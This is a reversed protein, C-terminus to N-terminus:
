AALRSRSQREAAVRRDVRRRGPRCSGRRGGAAPTEVDAPDGDADARPRDDDDGDRRKAGRVMSQSATSSHPAPMFFVSSRSRQERGLQQGGRGRAGGLEAGVASWRIPANPPRRRAGAARRRRRAFPRSRAPRVSAGIAAPWAIRRRGRSRSRRLAEFEADRGRATRSREGAPVKAAEARLASALSVARGESRPAPDGAAEHEDASTTTPTSPRRREAFRPQSSLRGHRRYGPAAAVRRLWAQVAPYDALASAAARPSMPTPTSRSTPSAHPRRRRALRAGALHEDM